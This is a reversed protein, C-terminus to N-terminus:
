PVAALLTWLDADLAFHLHAFSGGAALREVREALAAGMAPVAWPFAAVSALSAAAALPSLEEIWTREAQQVRLVRGLPFSGRRARPEIREANDFPVAAVHWGGGHPVLVGFDDGLSEAPRSRVVATSKGARSPGALLFARGAVLVGAAHLALGGADLALCATVFRVGNEVRREAPESGGPALELEWAHPCGKREAATFGYSAIGRRAGPLPEIRYREAPRPAPLLATGDSAGIEITASPENESSGALFPGWRHELRAALEADLGDLRLRFPGITLTRSTRTM